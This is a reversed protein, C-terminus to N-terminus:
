PQPLEYKMKSTDKDAQGLVYKFDKTTHEGKYPFTCNGDRDAMGPITGYRSTSIACWYPKDGIM